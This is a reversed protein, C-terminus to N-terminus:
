PPVKYVAKGGVTEPIAEASVYMSLEDVARNRPIWVLKSRTNEDIFPSVAKYVGYLAASYNVLFIKSLREPYFDQLVNLMDRVCGFHVNRVPSFDTFDFIIVFMAGPEFM